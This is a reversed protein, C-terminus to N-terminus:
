ADLIHPHRRVAAAGASAAQREDLADGSADRVVELAAVPRHHRAHREHLARQRRYWPELLQLDHLRGRILNHQVHYARGIEASRGLLRQEGLKARHKTGPDVDPCLVHLTDRLLARALVAKRDAPDSMDPLGAPSRTDTTM